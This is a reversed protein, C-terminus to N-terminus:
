WAFARRRVDSAVQRLVDLSGIDAVYADVRHGYVNGERLLEPWVDYGFDGHEPIRTLIEPALAYVGANIACERGPPASKEMFAVVRREDDLELMGKGETETSLYYSLTAMGRMKGHLERIDMDTVVDGYLLVFSETLFSRMPLLAGATGLLESEEFVHVRLPPECSALYDLVRDRLHHLNLAVDTVGQESLYRLQRSLLPEGAIEVLIKPISATLPALRTGQGAGLLVAKV